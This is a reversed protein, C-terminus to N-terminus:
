ILGERLKFEDFNKEYEVEAENYNKYTNKKYDVMARKFTNPDQLESNRTLFELFFFTM